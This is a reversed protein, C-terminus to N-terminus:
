RIEAEFKHKTITKITKKLEELGIKRPDYAVFLLDLNGTADPGREWEDEVSVM